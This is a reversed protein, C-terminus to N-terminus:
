RPFRVVSSLVLERADRALSFAVDVQFRNWFVVGAGGTVGVVTGPVYSNFRIQQNAAQWTKRSGEYDFRMQHNPETFFGGRFALVRGGGARRYEAGAHVELVDDIVYQSPALGSSPQGLYDVVQFGPTIRQSYRVYAADALLTLDSLPSVAVGVTARDPIRYDLPQVPNKFQEIPLPRRPPSNEPSFVGVITTTLHFTTGAYYAAGISLGSIPKVLVGLQGGLRLDRDHTVTGNRIPTHTAGSYEYSETDNRLRQLTLSGGVSVKRTLLVAGGIGVCHAKISMDGFYGGETVDPGNPIDFHEEYRQLSNYFVGVTVNRLFRVDPLPTVFSAFTPFSIGHSFTATTLPSASVMRTHRVDAGSWEFSVEPDFLNSLGAPNSAAATADDAIGVFTKGMAVARAGPTVVRFGLSEYTRENTQAGAAAAALLVAACAVAPTRARSGAARM